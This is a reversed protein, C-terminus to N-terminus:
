RAAAKQRESRIRDLLVSAPEDTADQPVLRGEFAVKLISQRLRVCRALNKEVTAELRDVVSLRREVEAVIRTQEAFPPIPIRIRRLRDQGINRMSEQNGTALSEIERRGWPSRLVYLLWEGLMGTITLRLIKDSLMVRRHVGRAIVCAGVLAITNARSFLFDTDRILLAEDIRRPDNCTKSEADDYRGWTVASVKVVGTEGAEPPREECKFSAGAEIRSVVSGVFGWTWNKPLPARRDDGSARTLVESVSADAGGDVSCRERRSLEAETPVLRGECAAKLVSARYRKLNAKVKKLASVAADLLTFQKDIEATIRDQERLPALRVAWESMAKAGLHHIGVGRAAKSFRGLEADAQFHALLYRPRVGAARVRLLTNQFCCGEIEGNWLAPKGVENPSGSAESLLVDGPQLEYDGVTAPPFDMQNVDSLDLGLWTVNAARLYPRMHPGSHFQPSRQRGLRVDAIQSLPTSVWGSPLSTSAREPSAHPTKAVPGTM